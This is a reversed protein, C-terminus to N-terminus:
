YECLKLLTEAAQRYYLQAEKHQGLCEYSQALYFDCSPSPHRARCQLLYSQAKTIQKCRIALRGACWYLRANDSDRQLWKETQLLLKEPNDVNLQGYLAILDQHWHRKLSYRLLVEAEEDAHHQLLGQVYAKVLMPNRQQTKVLGNWVRHLATLDKTAAKSLLAEYCQQELKVYHQQDRIVGHRKLEGLIGALAQWKQLAIYVEQVLSLAQVQSPYRELVDKLIVLAEDYQQQSVLLQAQSLTVALESGPTKTQAQALYDHAREPAQQALAARAAGMYHVFPQKLRCATRALAREALLWNGEALAIFGQLAQKENRKQHWVKHRTRWRQKISRVRRVIAGSLHSLILLALVSLIAFWLPMEFRWGQASILVYGPDGQLKLGLWVAVMLISITVLLRKIM